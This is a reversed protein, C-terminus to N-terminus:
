FGFLEKKVSDRYGAIDWGMSALYNELKKSVKSWETKHDIIIEDFWEPFTTMDVPFGIYKSKPHRIYVLGIKEGPLIKKDKNSCMSNWFMAARVQYPFGKDDGTMDFIDQCKKLTKVNIPKAIETAPLTEFEIEMEDIRKIISERDKGDVMMMLLEMLFRKTAVSTDSKKVELGMIKMKDVRKGESDVVHMAYRKKSIFISKDSVIERDTQVVDKRSAPCNFAHMCFSPFSENTMTGITDAIDITEEVSLSDSLKEGLAFMGSDTDGAILNNLDVIEWSWTDNDQDYVWGAVVNTSSFDEFDLPCTM